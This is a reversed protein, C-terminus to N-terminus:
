RSSSTCNPDLHTLLLLAIHRHGAANPHFRDACYDAWQDLQGALSVFEGGARRAREEYERQSNPSGPFYKEELDPPGLVVVRAGGSQLRRVLDTLAAEYTDIDTFRHQRGVRILVVKVRWRLASECREVMRRGRRSSYYPRPDIWGPSRWRRPLWRLAGPTPRVIAETIGHAIVAITPREDAPLINPWETIQRASASLDVLRLNLADAVLRCYTPGRAGLGNAVSDGFVVITGTPEDKRVEVTQIM